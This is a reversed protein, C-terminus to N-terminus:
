ASEPILPGASKRASRRRLLLGMMSVGLIGIPAPEPVTVEFVTGDNNDGGHATTGYLMNGSLTLDGYSYQGNSGDFSALVTPAGGTLPVSFVTGDEDDGGQVATGYLTNGDASLTLDANPEQGNTLYDLSALVTPTGGTLSLSFVTGEDNDGGAATTGYLTSGVRIVGGYPTNGDSGNFSALVTPTGGTVPVSFVTGGDYVGGYAGGGTTTGYLTNGSLTLGAQPYVGGVLTGFSALVTPTGGTVPLSFVTGYGFEHAGYDIGGFYTTGYLTNGSLTLGATPESGDSGNFSALVTPTGGTLPVSFVEGLGNAGGETTTGYLTNGSLTLDGYPNQGNSGNFSALVTPTGGTVPVSFVTGDGNAGGYGTTGYLTNGSLILGAEPGAGDGANFSALTNITDQAKAASAGWIGMLLGVGAIIALVFSHHNIKKTNMVATANKM